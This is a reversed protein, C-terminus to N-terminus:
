DMQAGYELVVPVIVEEEDSLHRHLFGRFGEQVELLQAAHDIARQNAQLGRLVDNTSEALRNMHFDLAHHDRDLLEFAEVMRPDFRQFQPFYHDDEITHHGHLQDLFFGTYRSLDAGYRPAKGDLHAQTDGIIRDIVQRFMLHRDLWFATLENFNGHGRWIDRPYKEALVRLHEPLGERSELPYTETM